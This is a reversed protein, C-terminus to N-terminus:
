LRGTHFSFRSVRPIWRAFRTVDDPLAHSQLRSHLWGSVRRWDELASTREDEELRELLTSLGTPRKDGRKKPEPALPITAMTERITNFFTAAVKPAGTDVALLLLVARYDPLGHADSLFLDREWPSLGVRILRYVNVFRKLTRPSRGLLPALDSIADLEARTIELGEPSLDTPTRAHEERAQLDDLDIDDLNPNLSFADDSAGPERPHEADPLSSGAQGAASAFMSGEVIPAPQASSPEEVVSAKLLDRVLRRSADPTMPKLWFPVQFIKEVYDHASAHGFLQKFEDVTAQDVPKGDSALLERYRAEISRLIWRADVGVVVVFLPFALLLHVAQLVEVVKAPPCRDLDDIYLVIRNIRKEEDKLEEDITSFPDRGDKSIGDLADNEEAILDSLKEFDNRVLALIGLHKRYDTSNAREEIFTTLLRPVTAEKLKTEAEVMRRTAEEVRRQAAVYDAELLRMREEAERVAKVNESQAQEVSQDFRRQVEEIRKLRNGVWDLQHRLWATVSALLGAAGSAVVTVTSAGEAGLWRPIVQAALAAAPGALLAMGLFVSRRGRDRSTLLPAFAAHGRSLMTRAEALTARLEVGRTIVADIGLEQLLPEFARTVEERPADALVNRGSMQALEV